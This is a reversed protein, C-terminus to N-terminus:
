NPRVKRLAIYGFMGLVIAGIAILMFPQVGTRRKHNAVGLADAMRAVEADSIDARYAYSVPISGFRSDRIKTNPSWQALKYFDVKANLVAEVIHFSGQQWMEGSDKHYTTVIIKSPYDKTSFSLRLTESINGNKYCNVETPFVQSERWDYYYTAQECNPFDSGESPKANSLTITCCNDTSEISESEFYEKAQVFNIRKPTHSYFYTFKHTTRDVLAEGKGNGFDAGTDTYSIADVIKLGPNEDRGMRLVSGDEASTSLVFTWTTPVQLLDPQYTKRVANIGAQREQESLRSKKYHEIQAAMKRMRRQRMSDSLKTPAVEFVGKLEYSKIATVRNLIAKDTATNAGTCNSAIAFYTFIYLYYKLKV